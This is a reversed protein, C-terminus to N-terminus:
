QLKIDALVTFLNRREVDNMARTRRYAGARYPEAIVTAILPTPDFMIHELSYPDHLEGASQLSAADAAAGGGSDFLAAGYAGRGGGGDLGPPRLAAVAPTALRPTTSTARQLVDDRGSLPTAGLPHDDDQHEDDDDLAHKAARRVGAGGGGEEQGNPVLGAASLDLRRAAAAPGRAAHALSSSSAAGNGLAALTDGLGFAYDDTVAYMDTTDLGALHGVREGEVHLLDYESLPVVDNAGRKERRAATSSARYERVWLVTKKKKKKKKQTLKKKKFILKYFFVSHYFCWV